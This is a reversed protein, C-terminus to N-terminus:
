GAVQQWPCREVLFQSGGEMAVGHGVGLAAGVAFLKAGGRHFVPHVCCRLNKQAQGQTTGLAVGVLEIGQGLLLIVLKVRDEILCGVVIIRIVLWPQGRRGVGM